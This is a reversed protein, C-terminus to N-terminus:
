KKGPIWDLMLGINSVNSIAMNIENQKLINRLHTVFVDLSRGVFYNSNQWVKEMLIDKNVVQGFNAALLEFIGAQKPSLQGKKKGGTEVPESKYFLIRKQPDFTCDGFEIIDEMKATLRQLTDFNKTYAYINHLISKAFFDTDSDTTYPVMIDSATINYTSELGLVVVPTYQSGRKIFDVAKQSYAKNSGIVFADYEPHEILEFLKKELKAIVVENGHEKAVRIISNLIEYNDTNVVIKM